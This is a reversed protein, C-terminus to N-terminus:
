NRVAKFFTEALIHDQVAARVHGDTGRRVYMASPEGDAGRWYNEM